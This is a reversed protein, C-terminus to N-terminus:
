RSQFKESKESVWRQDTGTSWSNDLREIEEGFTIQIKFQRIQLVVERDGDRRQASVM